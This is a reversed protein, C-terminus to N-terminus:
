LNELIYGGGVIQLSLYPLTFLVMVASFLMALPRSQTQGYILEAPTIYGEKKGLKWAKTGIVLMPIAALATGTAMIIYHTYGIKYGEAAFGLFYFASFNTALITFFLGITRLNRNALFYSEPTQTQKGIGILSGWFTIAIYGILIVYIM